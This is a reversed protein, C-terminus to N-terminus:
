FYLAKIQPDIPIVRSTIKHLFTLYFNFIPYALIYTPNLQPIKLNNPVWKLIILSGM